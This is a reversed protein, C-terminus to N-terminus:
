LKNGDSGVGFYHREEIDDLTLGQEKLLGELASRYLKRRTFSPVRERLLSEVAFMLPDMRLAGQKTRRRPESLRPNVGGHSPCVGKVRSGKYVGAGVAGNKCRDGSGGPVDVKEGDKQTKIGTKFSCQTKRGRRPRPPFKAKAKKTPNRGKPPPKFGLTKPRTGVPYGTPVRHTDGPLVHTDGDGRGSRRVSRRKAPKVEPWALPLPERKGVDSPRRTPTQTWAHAVLEEGGDAARASPDNSGSHTGTVIYSDPVTKKKAL